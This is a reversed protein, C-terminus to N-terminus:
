RMSALISKAPQILQKDSESITVASFRHRTDSAACVLNAGGSAKPGQGSASPCMEAVQLTPSVLYASKGSSFQWDTWCLLVFVIDVFRTIFLYANAAVNVPAYHLTTTKASRDLKPDLGDRGLSIPAVAGKTTFLPARGCTQCDEHFRLVEAPNSSSLM